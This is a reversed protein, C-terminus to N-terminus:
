ILLHNWPLRILRPAEFTFVCFFFIIPNREATGGFFGEKWREIWLKPECEGTNVTKKKNGKKEQKKM